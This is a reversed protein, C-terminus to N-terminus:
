IQDFLSSFIETRCSHCTSEGGNCKERELLILMDGKRNRKSELLTQM